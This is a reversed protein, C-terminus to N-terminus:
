TVQCPLLSSCLAGTVRVIELDPYVQHQVYIKVSKTDPSASILIIQEELGQNELASYGTTVADHILCCDQCGEQAAIAIDKFDLRSQGSIRLDGAILDESKSLGCCFCSQTAM